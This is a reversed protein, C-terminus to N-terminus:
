NRTQSKEPKTEEEGLHLITALGRKRLEPRYSSGETAVVVLDCGEHVKFRGRKEAGTRDGADHMEPVIIPGM